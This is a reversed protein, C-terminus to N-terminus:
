LGKVTSEKCATRERDFDPSELPYTNYKIEAAAINQSFLLYHGVSGTHFM